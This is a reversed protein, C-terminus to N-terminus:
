AAALARLRPVPYHEALVHFSSPEDLAPALDDMLRPLATACFRRAADHDAFSFTVIVSAFPATGDPPPLPTDIAYALAATAAEAMAPEVTLPGAAQGKLFLFVRVAAPPETGHRPGERVLAARVSVQDVFNAEDPQLVERYYPTSTAERLHGVSDFWVETVLDCDGRGRALAEPPHDIVHNQAYAAPMAGADAPANYVLPGHVLKLHRQAEERTKGPCRRGAIM